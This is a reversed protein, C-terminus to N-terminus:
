FDHPGKDVKAGDTSFDIIITNPMLNAPVSELKKILTKKFGIHLYEGGALNRILRSAVITPTNVVTRSDKPLSILNFPFQRLTKLLINGQTLNMYASLFANKLARRQLDAPNQQNVDADENESVSAESDVEVPAEQDELEEDTTNEEHSSVSETDDDDDDDYINDNINNHQVVNDDNNINLQQVGNDYDDIDNRQADIGDGDANNNGREPSASTGDIDDNSIDNDINGQNFELAELNEEADQRNEVILNLRRRKQRTSLEEFAKFKKSM